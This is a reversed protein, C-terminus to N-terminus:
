FFILLFLMKDVAFRVFRVCKTCVKPMHIEISENCIRMNNYRTCRAQISKFSKDFLRLPISLGSFSAVCTV